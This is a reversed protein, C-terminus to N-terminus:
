SDDAAWKSCASPLVTPSPVFACAAGRWSSLPRGGCELQFSDPGSRTERPALGSVEAAAELFDDVMASDLHGM